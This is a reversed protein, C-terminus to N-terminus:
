ENGYLKELKNLDMVTKNVFVEWTMEGDRVLELNDDIHQLLPDETVIPYLIDYFLTRNPVREGKLLQRAERIFSFIERHIDTESKIGYKVYLKDLGRNGRIEVLKKAQTEVDKGLSFKLINTLESFSDSLLDLIHDNNNKSDTYPNVLLEKINKRDTVFFNQIELLKEIVSVVREYLWYAMNCNFQDSLLKNLIYINTQQNLGYKRYLKELGKIGQNELLDRDELEWKGALAFSLIKTLDILV